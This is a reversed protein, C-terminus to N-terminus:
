GPGFMREIEDFVADLMASTAERGTFHLAWGHRTMERRITLGHRPRAVRRAWGPRPPPADSPLAEAEALILRLTRKLAGGGM